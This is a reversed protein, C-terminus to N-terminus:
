RWFRTVVSRARKRIRSRKKRELRQRRAAAQEPSLAATQAQRLLRELECDVAQVGSQNPHRALRSREPALLREIRRELTEISPERGRGAEQSFRNVEKQAAEM